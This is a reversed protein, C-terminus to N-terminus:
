VPNLVSISYVSESLWWGHMSCFHFLLFGDDCFHVRNNLVWFEILPLNLDALSHFESDTRM